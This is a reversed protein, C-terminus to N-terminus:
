HNFFGRGLKDPILLLTIDRKGCLARTEKDRISGSSALIATVGADALMAPGDPFPFFSDSYAVSGMTDHGASRALEKALRACGVRSRQGVGNGILMCNKVIVVTNSNATAGVGWALLM